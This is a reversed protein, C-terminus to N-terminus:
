YSNNVYLHMQPKNTAEQIKTSAEWSCTISLFTIKIVPPFAAQKFSINRWEQSVSLVIMFPTILQLGKDARYGNLSTDTSLYFFLWDM